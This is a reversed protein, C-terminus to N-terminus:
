SVTRRPLRVRFSAGGGEGDQVWAEGDHLAAFQAVVALGVGAGPAEIGSRASRSFLEFIMAKDVDAV